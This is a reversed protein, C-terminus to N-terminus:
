APVRTQLLRLATEPQSVAETQRIEGDTGVAVSQPTDETTDGPQGGLPREPEASWGGSVGCGADLAAQKRDGLPQTGLLCVGGGGDPDDALVATGHYGSRAGDPHFPYRGEGYAGGLRCARCVLIFCYVVVGGAERDERSGETSGYVPFLM